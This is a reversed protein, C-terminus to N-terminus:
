QQHVKRLADIADSFLKVKWDRRSYTVKQSKHVLARGLAFNRRRLDVTVYGHGPWDLVIVNKDDGAYFQSARWFPPLTVPLELNDTAQM